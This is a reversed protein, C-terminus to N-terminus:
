VLNHTNFYCNEVCFYLLHIHVVTNVWGGMSSGIVLQPGDTLKLLVEEADLLWHAFRADKREVLGDSEGLATPDYRHHHKLNGGHMYWYNDVAVSETLISHM